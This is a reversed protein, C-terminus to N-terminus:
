TIYIEDVVLRLVNVVKFYQLKTILFYKLVILKIYKLLLHYFYRNQIVFINQYKKLFFISCYVIYM